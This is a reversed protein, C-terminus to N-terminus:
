NSKNARNYFINPGLVIGFDYGILEPGQGERFVPTFSVGYFIALYKLYIIGFHGAQFRNVGYFDDHHQFKEIESVRRDDVRARRKFRGSVVYGCYLGPVWHHLVRNKASFRLISRAQISTTLLKSRRYDIGSTNDFQFSTYGDRRDVFYGREFDINTFGLAPAIGLRTKDLTDKRYSPFFFFIPIYGSSGFTQGLEEKGSGYYNQYAGLFQAEMPNHLLFFFSLCLLLKLSQSSIQM